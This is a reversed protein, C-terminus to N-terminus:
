RIDWSKPLSIQTNQNPWFSLNGFESKFLQLTEFEASKKEREFDPDWPPRGYEDMAGGPGPGGGWFITGGGSLPRPDPMLLYGKGYSAWDSEAIHREPYLWDEKAAAIYQLARSKVIFNIQTVEEETLHRLTQIETFKFIADRFRRANPRKSIEKQYPDRVWSLNSLILVKELSLPFITHTANLAIDPDNNDRCWRSEPGCARNYVTVPHDSIIFKTESKSADAIQWICEMWLACHVQRLELMARLAVQQNTTRLQDRLWGLGKPTRLKQTSMYLLLNNLAAGNWDGSEHDFREAWDVAKHGNGDIDGFFVREIDTSQINGFQRTYLDQEAFCHKFGQRRMANKPHIVGRGDVFFGPSFNLYCLENDKQGPLIFRKQYWEPVYHNHRYESSM